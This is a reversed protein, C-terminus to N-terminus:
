RELVWTDKAGGGQSSNVVLEGEDYAVRSLGGPIAKARVGDFTVFARLDVHRPAIRGDIVTPHTSFFVTEQAIYDEPHARITNSVHERQEPTAIPGVYVGDGGYASRPKVVMEPMRDLVHELCSPDALDYTPVSHILPEEHLYFRVMDEVHAHVLKDDAVGNGLANVIAVTGDRLAPMLARGITTLAGHEDYLRDEDTRRYVVDVAKLDLTELTVMEIGLRDALVAHEWYASNSPGDTLLVVRVDDGGGGANRLVRQLAEVAVPEFPVPHKMDAVDDVHPLVADRAAMAYALGSPTRLNDELVQFHGDQTRVIDLGAVGIRILPEALKGIEPEHYDAGTIVRKPVIGERVIRQEGYVDHLFADLAQVRQEVGAALVVWEEPTLIRPILDVPFAERREGWGFTCGGELLHRRVEVVSADLDTRALGGLVDVYHERPLGAASFGEDYLDEPDYREGGRPLPTTHTAAM